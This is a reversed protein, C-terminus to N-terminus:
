TACGNIDIAFIGALTSYLTTSFRRPLGLARHAARPGGKEEDPFSAVLGHGAGLIFLVLQRTLLSAFPTDEAAFLLPLVIDSARGLHM